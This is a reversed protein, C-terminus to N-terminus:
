EEKTPDPVLPLLDGLSWLRPGIVAAAQGDSLELVQTVDYLALMWEEDPCMAEEVDLRLRSLKVAIDEKTYYESM